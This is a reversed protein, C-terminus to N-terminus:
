RCPRRCSRRRCSRGCRRWSADGPCARCAARRGSCACGSPDIHTPGPHTCNVASGMCHPHGGVLMLVLGADLAFPERGRPVDRDIRCVVSKEALLGLELSNVGTEEFPEPGTAKECRKADGENGGLKAVSRSIVVPRLFLGFVIEIPAVSTDDDGFLDQSAHSSHPVVPVLVLILGSM